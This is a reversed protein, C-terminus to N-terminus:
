AREDDAGKNEAGDATGSETNQASVAENKACRHTIKTCLRGLPVALDFSLFGRCFANDHTRILKLLGCTIFWGGVAALAGALLGGIIDTPYHVVLFMRSLGTLAVFIYATWSYKKPFNLFIATMAAMAHTTHGSPFSKESANPGGIYSWWERFVAVETNQFPRPRAVLNKIVINTIFLGCLMGLLLCMGAKRTKKFCFLLIGLVILGIGEEGLLSIFRMFWDFLSGQGGTAAALNHVGQLVARDFALWATDLWHAM